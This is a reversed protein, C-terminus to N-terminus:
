DAKNIHMHQFGEYKNLPNARIPVVVTYSITIQHSEKTFNYVRWQFLGCKIILNEIHVYYRMM